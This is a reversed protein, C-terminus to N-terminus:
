QSWALLETGGQSSPAYQASTVVDWTLGPSAEAQSHETGIVPVGGDSRVDRVQDPASGAERHGPRDSGGPCDADLLRYSPLDLLMLRSPDQPQDPSKIYVSGDPRPIHYVGQRALLWWDAAQEIVWRELNDFVVPYADQVRHVWDEAVSFFTGLDDVMLRQSLEQGFGLFLIRQYRQKRDARDDVTRLYEQVRHFWSTMTQQQEITPVDDERVNRVIGYLEWGLEYTLESVKGAQAVEPEPRSSVPEVELLPNAAARSRKRDTDDFTGLTSDSIPSDSSKEREVRCGGPEPLAQNHVAPSSTSASSSVGDRRPRRGRRTADGLRAKGRQINGRTDLVDLYLLERLDPERALVRDVRKNDVKLMRAILNSSLRFRGTIRPNARTWEEWNDDIHAQSDRVQDAIVRDYDRGRIATDHRHLHYQRIQRRADDPGSVVRVLCNQRADDLLWESAPDDVVLRNLAEWYPYDALLGGHQDIVLRIGASGFDRIVEIHRRVDEPVGCTGGLRRYPAMVAEYDPIPRIPLEGCIIKKKIATIDIDDRAEAQGWSGQQSPLVIRNERVGIGNM